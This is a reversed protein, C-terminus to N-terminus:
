RGIKLRVLPQHYLKYRYYYRIASDLPMEDESLEYRNLIHAISDTTNEGYAMRVTTESVLRDIFSRKVFQNFAVIKVPSLNRGFRSRAAGVSLGVELRDSLRYYRSPVEPTPYRDLCAQLYAGFPNGYYSILFPQTDYHAALFKRVVPYVPISMTLYQPM